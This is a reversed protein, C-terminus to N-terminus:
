IVIFYKIYVTYSTLKVDLAGHDRLGWGGIPYVGDKQNLDGRMAIAFSATYAPTCNCKSFEDNKFDNYRMIKRMGVIDKINSHDRKFIKARPNKDWTYYDDVVEQATANSMERIEKFFASNYSPYYRNDRLFYTIDRTLTYGPIQEVVYLLGDKLDQKPEFLNMNLVMYQNNYCGNNEEEYLKGWM